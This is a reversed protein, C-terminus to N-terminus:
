LPLKMKVTWFYCGYYTVAPVRYFQWTNVPGRNCFTQLGSSQPIDKLCNNYIYFITQSMLLPTALRFIQPTAFFKPPWFAQNEAFLVM